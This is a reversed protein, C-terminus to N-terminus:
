RKEVSAPFLSMKVVLLVIFSGISQVGVSSVFSQSEALTTSTEGCQRGNKICSRSRYLVLSLSWVIAHFYALSHVCFISHLKWVCM